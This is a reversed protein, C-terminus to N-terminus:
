ASLSMFKYLGSGFKKRSNKEQIKALKSNTTRLWFKPKVMIGDLSHIAISDKDDLNFSLTIYFAFCVSLVVCCLFAELYNIWKVIGCEFPYLFM